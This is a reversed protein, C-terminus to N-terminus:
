LGLIKTKKSEHNILKDLEIITKNFIKNSLKKLIRVKNFNKKFIIQTALDKPNEIKKSIKIKKLLKYVELFNSINPGHLIKAGYRAPELPNQGGKSVISGGLFVTSAIKYFKKSEGYSNVLYIDTNKLNKNKESHCIVNLNLKKIERIIKNVRNIHRPILITILKKNKKKLILHTKAAFIEENHHTSAAVFIKNKKFKIKLNEDIKDQNNNKNEIFKINGILNINKVGLKKLYKKTENNQPFATDIKNFIKESYRKFINWREFTKKTIRANLLILPIKKIKIANYMGPWIESELFIALHPKWYNLFLNSFLFYDVPFFQHVVKKFKFNNIIKSSSLTSSTILIQKITKDNDYKYIIPIVSMIEGVSSGHFWILKGQNRKKSFFGFKEIFRYKDEKNKFVRIIIILPSIIILFTLLLQYIFFM